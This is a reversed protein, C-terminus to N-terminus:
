INIITTNEEYLTFLIAIGQLVLGTIHETEILQITIVEIQQNKMDHVFLCVQLYYLFFTIAVCLDSLAPSAYNSISNKQKVNM